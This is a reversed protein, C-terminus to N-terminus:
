GDADAAAPAKSSPLHQESLPADAREPLTPDCFTIYWGKVQKVEEDMMKKLKPVAAKAAPGIEGLAVIVPFRVSAAPDDLAEILAPVAPAAAPGMGSIEYAAATRTQPAVGTKLETVWQSLTRGDSVPEKATAGQAWASSTLGVVLAALLGLIRNLM